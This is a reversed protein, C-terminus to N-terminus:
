VAMGVDAESQLVRSLTFKGYNRGMMKNKVQHKLAQMYVPASTVEYTLGRYLGRVMKFKTNGYTPMHQEVEQFKGPEGALVKGMRAAMAGSKIMLEYSVTVRGTLCHSNMLVDPSWGESLCRPLEFDRHVATITCKQSNRASIKDGVVQNNVMRLDVVATKTLSATTVNVAHVVGEERCHMMISNDRKAVTKGLVCQGETIYENIRPLGSSDITTYDDNPKCLTETPDATDKITCRYRIRTQMMLAGKELAERKMVAGDEANTPRTVLALNIMQGTGRNQMELLDQMENKVLPDAPMMLEKFAGRHISSGLAQKAMSIQYFNRPAQNHNIFPILSSTNSLFAYEYLECHTYKRPM